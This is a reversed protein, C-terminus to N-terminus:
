VYNHPQLLHIYENVLNRLIFYYYYYYYHM